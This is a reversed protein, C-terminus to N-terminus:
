LANPKRTKADAEASKALTRARLESFALTASRKMM